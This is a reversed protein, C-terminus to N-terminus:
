KVPLSSSFSSAGLSLFGFHLEALIALPIL